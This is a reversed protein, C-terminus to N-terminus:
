KLYTAWWPEINSQSTNMNTALTSNPIGALTFVFRKLMDRAEQIGGVKAFECKLTKPQGIQEVVADFAERANVGSRVQQDLADRLHSELEDLVESSKVGGCAMQQRWDTIAQDINFM